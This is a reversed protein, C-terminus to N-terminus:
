GHGNEKDTNLGWTVAARSRIAIPLVSLKSVTRAMRHSTIASSPIKSVPKDVTSSTNVVAL